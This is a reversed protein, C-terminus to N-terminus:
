GRLAGRARSQRLSTIHSLKTIAHRLSDDVQGLARDGGHVHAIIKGSIHAASAAAFAEVRDGVILVVDSNLRDFTAALSEIARGTARATDLPSGTAARWPVTADIKREISRITNGHRRDLHMGTVVIQLQLKPHKRIARLTSEMLGFEARTGTVFCIRRKRPM